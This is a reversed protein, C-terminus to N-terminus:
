APLFWAKPYNALFNAAITEYGAADPHIGDPMSEAEVENFLKLGDLYFINPDEKARAEVIEAM